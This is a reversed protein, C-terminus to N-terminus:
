VLHTFTNHFSENDPYVDHHVTTRWMHPHGLFFHCESIAISLKTLIFNDVAYIGGAPLEVSWTNLTLHYLVFCLSPRTHMNHWVLDRTALSAPTQSHLVLTCAIIIPYTSHIALAPTFEHFHIHPNGCQPNTTQLHCCNRSTNLGYSFNM